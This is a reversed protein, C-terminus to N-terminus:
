PWHFHSCFLGKKGLNTKPWPTEDCCYFGVSYCTGLEWTLRSMAVQLVLELLDAGMNRKFSFLVRTLTFVARGEKKSALPRSELYNCVVM